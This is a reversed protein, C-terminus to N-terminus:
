FYIRRMKPRVVSHAIVMTRLAAKIFMPELPAVISQMFEGRSLKTTQPTDRPVSAYSWYKPGSELFGCINRLPSAAQIMAGTSPAYKAAKMYPYLQHKETLEKTREPTISPKIPKTGHFLYNWYSAATFSTLAFDEIGLRFPISGKYGSDICFFDRYDEKVFNVTMSSIDPRFITDKFGEMQALVEFEWTDRGPLLIMKGKARKKAEKWFAKLCSLTREPVNVTTNSYLPYSENKTSPSTLLSMSPVYGLNPKIFTEIHEDLWTEQFM